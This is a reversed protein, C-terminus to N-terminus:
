EVPEKSSEPQSPQILNDATAAGIVAFVSILSVVKATQYIDANFTSPAGSLLLVLSTTALPVIILSLFRLTLGMFKREEEWERERGAVYLIAHGLGLALGILVLSQSLSTNAAIRWVEETFIFPSTLIASGIVQQIFDDGGFPYRSSAKELLNRLM